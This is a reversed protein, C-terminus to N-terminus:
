CQIKSSGKLQILIGRIWGLSQKQITASGSLQALHMPIRTFFHGFTLSQQATVACPTLTCLLLWYSGKTKLVNSLITKHGCKSSSSFQLYRKFLSVSKNFPSSSREAALLRFIDTQKTPQPSFCTYSYSEQITIAPILFTKLRTFLIAFCPCWCSEASILGILNYFIFAKKLSSPTINFYIILLIPEKETM